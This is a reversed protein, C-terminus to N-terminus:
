KIRRRHSGCKCRHKWLAKQWDAAFIQESKLLVTKSTPATLTLRSCRRCQLLRPLCRGIPLKFGLVSDVFEEIKIPETPSVTNTSYRSFIRYIHSSLKRATSADDLVVDTLFGFINRTCKSHLQPDCLLAGLFSCFSDSNPCGPLLSLAASLSGGAQSLFSSVAPNSCSVDKIRTVLTATAKILQQCSRNFEENLLLLCPMGPESSSLSALQKGLRLTARELVPITSVAVEMSDEDELAAMIIKSTTMVEIVADVIEYAQWYVM